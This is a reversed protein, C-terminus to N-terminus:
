KRKTKVVRNFNENKIYYHKRTTWIQCNGLYYHTDTVTVYTDNFTETKHILENKPQPLQVRTGYEDVDICLQHNVMGDFEIRCVHEYSYLLVLSKSSDLATDKTMNSLQKDLAIIVQKLSDMVQESNMWDRGCHTETKNLDFPTNFGNINPKQSDQATLNNTSSNIILVLILLLNSTMLHKSNKM